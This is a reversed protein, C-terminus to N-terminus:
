GSKKYRARYRQRQLVRTRLWKLRVSIKYRNKPCLSRKAGIAPIASAGSKSANVTQPGCFYNQNDPRQLWRRQSEAKSQKRCAPASCYRQHHLNRRDPLYFESCHNCKRPASCKM